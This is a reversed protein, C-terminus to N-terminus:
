SAEGLVAEVAHLVDVALAPRKGSLADDLIRRMARAPNKSGNPPLLAVVRRSLEAATLGAAKMRSRIDEHDIEIRRGNYDRAKRGTRRVEHGKARAVLRTFEPAVKDEAGPPLYGRRWAYLALAVIRPPLGHGLDPDKTFLLDRIWRREGGAGYNDYAVVPSRDQVLRDLETTLIDWVERGASRV